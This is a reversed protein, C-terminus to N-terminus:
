PQPGDYGEVIVLDIVSVPARLAVAAQYGPSEYCAKAQEFSPFEIVVNRSRSSGEPCEFRGGRVLFKAGYAHLPEANAAIYAKYREVDDVDVRAVWYAKPM